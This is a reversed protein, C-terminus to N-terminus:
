RLLGATWNVVVTLPSTSPREPREIVLFRQGDRSVAYNGPRTRIQGSGPIDFLPKPVGAQFTTTGLVEVAMITRDRTEYFLERGDRRWQPAVGGGPSIRWKQDTAQFPRVYVDVAGGEDSQYAVWRGDPSPRPNGENFPTRLFASPKGDGAPRVIWLDSKTQPDDEQYFFIEGDSSWDGPLKRRPSKLLLRPDGSGSSPKEFLDNNAAFAIRKGDPSWRPDSDDEPGFTVRTPIGARSLDVVWIDYPARPGTGRSVAVSRNDPSLAMEGYRGRPGVAELRKGSRDFWAMQPEADSEDRSRRYGLVGGESVTFGARGGTSIAVDAVRQPEGSLTLSTPDFPQAM